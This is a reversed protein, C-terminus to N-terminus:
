SELGNMRLIEILKEESINEMETKSYISMLYLNDEGDFYYYIIRFGGRKGTSISANALRIKYCHSTLAVGAHPNDILTERLEKLDNPLNKYKKHLRKVEKTFSELAHLNLSM